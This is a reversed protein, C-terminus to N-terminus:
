NLAKQRVGAVYGNRFGTKFNGSNYCSFAMDLRVQEDRIAGGARAFCDGLIRSALALNQCPEFAKERAVGYAKVNNIHIQGIGVSYTVGADDLLKMALVAEKMTVPQRSLRYGQRDDVGIAFVKLASEQRVLGKLTVFAVNPACQQAVQELQGM